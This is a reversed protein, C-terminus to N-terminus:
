ITRLKGVVLPFVYCSSNSMRPAILLPAKGAVYLSVRYRLAADLKGDKDPFFAGIRAGTWCYVSMLFPIQAKNRPHIFEVEDVTWFTYNFAAMEKAGFLHKEKRKNVVMTQKIM